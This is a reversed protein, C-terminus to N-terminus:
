QHLVELALVARTFYHHKVGHMLEAGHVSLLSILYMRRVCSPQICVLAMTPHGDVYSQFIYSREILDALSRELLRPGRHLHIYYCYVCTIIQVCSIVLSSYISTYLDLLFENLLIYSINLAHMLM